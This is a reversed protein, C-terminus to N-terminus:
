IVMEYAGVEQQFYAGVVPLLQALSLSGLTTKNNAGPFLQLGCTVMTDVWSLHLTGVLEKLMSIM